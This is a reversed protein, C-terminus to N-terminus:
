PKAISRACWHNRWHPAEIQLEKGPKLDLCYRVLVRALSSVRPDTM